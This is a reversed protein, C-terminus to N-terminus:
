GKRWFRKMYQAVSEPKGPKLTISIVAGPELVAGNGAVSEVDYAHLSRLYDADTDDTNFVYTRTESAVQAGHSVEMNPAHTTKVELTYM